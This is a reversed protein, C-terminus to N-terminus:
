GEMRKRFRECVDCTIPEETYVGKGGRGCMTYLEGRVLNMPSELHVTNSKGLRINTVM